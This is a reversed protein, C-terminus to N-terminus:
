ITTKLGAAIREILVMMFVGLAMMLMAQFVQPDKSTTVLYNWPLISRDAVPIQEGKGTIVYEQVERWPWVKNLSGLMFGALLAVTTSLYNDIIWSLFRAMGLLSIAGGVAFLGLVPLSMQGFAWVMLQYKGILVLFFGGSLGPLLMGLAGVLGAVFAWLFTNSTHLPPFLTLGFTAAAGFLFFLVTALSWKRIRRLALPAAMLIVGFFFSFLPIPYHGLLHIMGRSLILLGLFVAVAWTALFNGDIKTWCDAFRKHGILEFAERDIARLARVLREHIGSMFAVTGGSVGPIIDVAAMTLGKGFLIIYDLPKKL